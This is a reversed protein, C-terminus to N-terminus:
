IQPKPFPAGVWILVGELRFGFSTKLFVAMVNVASTVTSRNTNTTGSLVLLCMKLTRM